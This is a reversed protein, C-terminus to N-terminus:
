KQSCEFSRESGTLPKVPSTLRLFCRELLVAVVKPMHSRPLLRPAQLPDASALM